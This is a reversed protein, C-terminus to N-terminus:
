RGRAIRRIRRAPGPAPASADNVVEIFRTRAARLDAPPQACLLQLLRDATLADDAPVKSLVDLLVVASSSADLKVLAALAEDRFARAVGKRLLLAVYM